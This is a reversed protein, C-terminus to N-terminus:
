FLQYFPMAAFTLLVDGDLVDVDVFASPGNDAIHLPPPICVL